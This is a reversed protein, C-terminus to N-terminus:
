KPTVEKYGTCKVLWIPDFNFPHNFWGNKIGTPDGIVEIENSIGTIPMTRGVSAFISLLQLMPNEMQKKYAPHECRKHASGPVNGIYQCGKGTFCKDRMIEAETM